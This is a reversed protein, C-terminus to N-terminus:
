EAPEALVEDDTELAIEAGTDAATKSGAASKSAGTGTGTGTRLKILIIQGGSTTKQRNVKMKGLPPLNLEQGDTLAQALVALMADVVPKVQSKKLKGHAAVRDVLDRKKMETGSGGGRTETVVVPEVHPAAAIAAAADPATAAKRSTTGAPGRPNAGKTAGTRSESMKAGAKRAPKADSKAATTGRTAPNKAVPKRTTATAATKPDTTTTKAMIQVKQKPNPFLM